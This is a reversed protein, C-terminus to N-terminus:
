HEEPSVEVFLHGVGLQLEVAFHTGQTEDILAALADDDHHLGAITWFYLPDKGPRDWRLRSDIVHKM